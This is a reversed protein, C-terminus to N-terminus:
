QLPNSTPCIHHDTPYHGGRSTAKPGRPRSCAVLPQRAPCLRPQAQRDRNRRRGPATDRRGRRDALFVLALFVLALFHEVLEVGTIGLELFQEGLEDGGPALVDAVLLVV